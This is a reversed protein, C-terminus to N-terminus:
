ANKADVFPEFAVLKIEVKEANDPSGESSVYMGVVKAVLWDLRGAVYRSLTQSSVAAAVRGALVETSPLCWGTTSVEGGVSSLSLDEASGFMEGDEEGSAAAVGNSNSPPPPSPTDQSPLPNMAGRRITELRLSTLSLWIHLVCIFCAHKQELHTSCGMQLGNQTGEVHGRKMGPM